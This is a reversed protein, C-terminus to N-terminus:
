TGAEVLKREPWTKMEWEMTCECSENPDLYYETIAYPTPPVKWIDTDAQMIYVPNVAGLNPWDGILRVTDSRNTVRYLIKVTSGVAYAFKDTRLYYEIGDKEALTSNIICNRDCGFQFLLPLLFICASRVIRKM